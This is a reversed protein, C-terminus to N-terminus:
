GTTLIWQGNDMTQKNYLLQCLALISQSHLFQGVLKDLVLL